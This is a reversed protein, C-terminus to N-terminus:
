ILVCLAVVIIVFLAVFFLMPHEEMFEKVSTWVRRLWGKLGKQKATQMFKIEDIEDMESAGVWRDHDDRYLVVGRASESDETAGGRQSSASSGDRDFLRKTSSIRRRLIARYSRRQGLAPQKLDRAPDAVPTTGSGPAPLAPLPTYGPLAPPLATPHRQGAYPPPPAEGATTTGPAAYAPLTPVEEPPDDATEAESPAPSATASRQETEHGTTPPTEQQLLQPSNANPIVVLTKNSSGTRLRRLLARAKTDSSPVDPLQKVQQGEQHYWFVPTTLTGFPM